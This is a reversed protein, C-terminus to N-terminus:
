VKKSVWYIFYVVAIAFFINLFNNGAINNVKGLTDIIIKTFGDMNDVSLRGTLTLGLAMLGTILFIISAVLNSLTVTGIVPKKFITMKSVKDSLFLSMLLLPVVM